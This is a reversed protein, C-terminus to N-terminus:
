TSRQLDVSEGASRVAIAPGDDALQGVALKLAEVDGARRLTQIGDIARKPDSTRKLRVLTDRGLLGSLQRWAGHDGIHGASLAAVYLQNNVEDSAGITRATDRAWEKFVRETMARTGRAMTETRWWNAVRDAGEIVAELKLEGWASTGFLVGAAIGQLATATVDDPAQLRIAQVAGAERHADQVKGIDLLARARQVRLWADDVASL